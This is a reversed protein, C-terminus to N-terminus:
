ICLAGMICILWPGRSLWLSAGIVFEPTDSPLGGVMGCGPAGGCAPWLLSCWSCMWSFLSTSLRSTCEFTWTSTAEDAISTGTRGHHDGEPVGYIVGTSACHFHLASWCAVIPTKSKIRKVAERRTDDQRTKDRRSEKRRLMSSNSVNSVEWLGTRERSGVGVGTGSRHCTHSTRMYVCEVKGRGKWTWTREMTRLKREV